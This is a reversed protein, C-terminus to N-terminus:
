NGQASAETLCFSRDRRRHQLRYQEKECKVVSAFEKLPSCPLLRRDKKFLVQKRKEQCSSFDQGIVCAYHREECDYILFKGRSYKKSIHLPPVYEEQKESSSKARISKDQYEGTLNSSKRNKVPTKLIASNSASKEEDDQCWGPGGFLSILLGFLIAYIIKM